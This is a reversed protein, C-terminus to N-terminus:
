PQQTTEIAMHWNLQKAEWLPQIEIGHRQKLPERMAFLGRGIMMSLIERTRKGFGQNPLKGGRKFVVRGAKTESLEGDLRAMHGGETAFSGLDVANGLWHVTPGPTTRGGLGREFMEKTGEVLRLAGSIKFASVHPLVPFNPDVVGYLGPNANFADIQANVLTVLTAIIQPFEKRVYLADPDNGIGDPMGVQECFFPNAPNDADIPVLNGTMIERDVYTRQRAITEDYLPKREAYPRKMSAEFRRLLDEGMMDELRKALLKRNRPATYAGIRDLEDATWGTKGEAANKALTEYLAALAQKADAEVEAFTEVAPAVPEQEPEPLDISALREAGARLVPSAIGVAAAAGTLADRRSVGQGPARSRVDKAASAGSVLGGIVAAAGTFMSLGRWLGRRTPPEPLSVLDDGADRERAHMSVYNEEEMILSGMALVKQPYMFVDPGVRASGDKTSLGFSLGVVGLWADIGYPPEGISTRVRDDSLSLFRDVCAAIRGPGANYANITAIEVLTGAQFGPDLERLRAELRDITGRTREQIVRYFACFLEASVFRNKWSEEYSGIPGSRVPAGLEPHREIYKKADEFGGATFQFIGRAGAASEATRDYGSENAAVGLVIARPIDYAKAIEVIGDYVVREKGGFYSPGAGASKTTEALRELIVGILSASEPRNEAGPLQASAVFPYGVAAYDKPTVSPGAIKTRNANHWAQMEAQLSAKLATIRARTTARVDASPKNPPELSAEEKQISAKLMRLPEPLEAVLLVTGRADFYRFTGEPSSFVTKFHDVFTDQVGGTHREDQFRTERVIEGVETYTWDPHERDTGLDTSTTELPEPVDILAHAMGSAAATMALLETKSPRAPQAPPPPLEAPEPVLGEPPTKRDM